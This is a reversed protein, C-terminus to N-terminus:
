KKIIWQYRFAWKWKIRHSGELVSALKELEHRRFGRAVSVLGDHRATKTKLFFTSFIRFLNFAWVSRHLDNIIIGTSCQARVRSLIQEIEKEPFHHLFLSFVAIDHKPIPEKKDLVNVAKFNINKIGESRNKAEKIIHINADLGMLNFEYNNRKGWFYCRRLTEGDGCGVDVISTTPKGMREKMLYGLGNLTIRNGGLFRNVKSLDVLLQEMEPGHFSLDDMIEKEESRYTSSFQIM